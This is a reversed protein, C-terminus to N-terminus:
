MSNNAIIEDRLENLKRWHENAFPNGSERLLMLNELRKIKMNIDHVLSM